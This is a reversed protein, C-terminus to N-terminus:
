GSIGYLYFTSGSAWATPTSFGVSTIATATGFNSMHGSSLNVGTGGTGLEGGYSLLNKQQGLKKYNLLNVVLVTRSSNIPTIFEDITNGPSSTQDSDATGGTGYLYVGAGTGPSTNNLRLRLEASATSASTVNAVLVLDKHTNPISDFDVITATGSLTTSALLDYTATPM